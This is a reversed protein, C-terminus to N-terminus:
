SATRATAPDKLAVAKHFADLAKGMNVKSLGPKGGNNQRLTKWDAHTPVHCDPFIM